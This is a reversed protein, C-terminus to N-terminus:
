IKIKSTIVSEHLQLYLEYHEMFGEGLNETTHRRKHYQLDLGHCQCQYLVTLQVVPGIWNEVPKVKVMKTHRNLETAQDWTYIKTTNCYLYLVPKMMVFFIRKYSRQIIMSMGETRNRQWWTNTRWRQSLKTM